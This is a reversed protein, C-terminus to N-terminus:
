KRSRRSIVRRAAGVVAARVFEWQAQGLLECAERVAEAEEPTVDCRLGVLGEPRTRPRGRGRKPKEHGDMVV